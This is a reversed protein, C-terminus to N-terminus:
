NFSSPEYYDERLIKKIKNIIAEKKEDEYIQSAGNFVANPWCSDGNYRAIIHIHLQSVVNGLAAINLKHPSFIKKMIKSMIDIEDILLHQDEKSLDIIEKVNSRKPVLIIWPFISNNNLFLYCLNLEGVKFNLNSFASDLIFEDSM